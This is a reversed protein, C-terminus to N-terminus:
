GDPCGEAKEEEQAHPHTEDAKTRNEPGKMDASLIATLRWKRCEAVV